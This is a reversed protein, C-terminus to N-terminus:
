YGEEELAAKVTEKILKCISGDHCYDVHVVGKEDHWVKAGSVRYYQSNSIKEGQLEAYCVNGTNYHEASLGILEKWNNVYYRIEGNSKKWEKREIKTM